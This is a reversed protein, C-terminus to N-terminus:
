SLIRTAESLPTPHLHLFDVRREDTLTMSSYCLPLSVLDLLLSIFLVKLIKNRNLAPAATSGMKTFPVILMSRTFIRGSPQQVLFLSPLIPIKYGRAICCLTICISDRPAEITLKGDRYSFPFLQPSTDLYRDWLHVFFPRPKHHQRQERTISSKPTNSAV